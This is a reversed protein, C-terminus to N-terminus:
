GDVRRDRLKAAIAKVDASEPQGRGKLDMYRGLLHIASPPLDEVTLLQRANSESDCRM